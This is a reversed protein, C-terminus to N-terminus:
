GTKQMEDNVYERCRIVIGKAAAMLCTTPYFISGTIAQGHDSRKQEDHGGLLSLTALRCLSKYPAEKQSDPM